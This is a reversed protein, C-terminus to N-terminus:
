EHNNSNIIKVNQAIGIQISNKGATQKIEPLQGLEIPSITLEPSESLIEIINKRLEDRNMTVPQSVKAADKKGKTRAQIQLLIEKIKGWSDESLKEGIKGAASKGAEIGGKVLYPLLPLLFDVLHDAIQNIDM